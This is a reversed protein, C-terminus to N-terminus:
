INPTMETQALSSFYVPVSPTYLEDIHRVRASWRGIGCVCGCYEQEQELGRSVAATCGFVAQPPVGTGLRDHQQELGGGV